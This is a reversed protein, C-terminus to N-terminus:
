SSAVEKLVAKLREEFDGRCKAGALLAGLDLKLIKKDRLSETVAGRAVRQAIGEVVATKGVGAEGVLVPNNKTRRSLLQITRRIEEDRGIVPDLKGQAALKTLDRAYRELAASKAEPDDHTNRKNGSVEVLAALLAAKTAGANRLAEGAPTKSAALALLFHEPSIFEDKMEAAQKAAAEWTDKIQRGFDVDLAAGHARPLKDMARDLDARVVRPDAGLKGLIRPVVGGEQDLLAALLHEATIEANHKAIAVDRSAALAERAKVTLTDIKM